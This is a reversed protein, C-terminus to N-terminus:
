FLTANLSLVIFLDLFDGGLMIGSGDPYQGDNQYIFYSRLQTFSLQPPILHRTSTVPTLSYTENQLDRGIVGGMLPNGIALILYGIGLTRKSELDMSFTRVKAM